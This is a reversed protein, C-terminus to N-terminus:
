ASEKQIKVALEKLSRPKRIAAEDIVYKLGKNNMDPLDYMLDLMLRELMSRLARAGTGKQLAQQALAQLADPTLPNLAVPSPTMPM